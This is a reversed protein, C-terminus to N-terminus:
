RKPALWRDFARAGVARGWLDIRVPTGDHAMASAPGRVYGLAVCAGAARSFGASSLEGVAAGDVLITEGGWVYDDASDLVFTLLKKRLPQGQLSVLVDRGIFGGPKDLRVGVTLGADFPSEDPGLEAGWARRGAEIRLADLAYYGADVLGLDAGADHLVGDVHRVMEIPVYLEWGPGGVYSIRAARVRAHGLDIEKSEGLNAPLTDPGVRALLAAANPGMLSLVSTMASVDTVTVFAEPAVHRGIWDADRTGQASGTLLWFRDAALRVVTLDSEFGGRENLM